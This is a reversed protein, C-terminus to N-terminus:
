DLACAIAFETMPGRKMGARRSFMGLQLSFWPYAVDACASWSLYSDEFICAIKSAPRELAVM